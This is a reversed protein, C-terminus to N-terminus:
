ARLCSWGLAGSKIVRARKLIFQDPTTSSATGPVAADAGAAGGGVVRHDGGGGQEAIIWAGITSLM